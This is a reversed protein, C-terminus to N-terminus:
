KISEEENKDNSLVADRAEGLTDTGASIGESISGFLVGIPDDQGRSLTFPISAIFVLLVIVGGLWVLVTFKRREEPTASPTPAEPQKSKSVPESM